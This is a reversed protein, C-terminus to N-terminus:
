SAAAPAAPKAAPATDRKRAYLAQDASHLFQQVNDGAHYTVWGASFTFRIRQKEFEIELPELRRLVIKLQMQTCEPLLLLFEDGGMRAVIDSGRSARKARQAFEKLALDGALHGYKDNIEKFDNLDVLALTLPQEKRGCRKIEEEIRAEAARRNYVGTLSDFMALQRYEEAKVRQEILARRMTHLSFLQYVTYLAFLAVLAVLGRVSHEVDFSLFAPLEVHMASLSLTVVGATLVGTVAISFIWLRWDRRELKRLLAEIEEPQALLVPAETKTAPSNV